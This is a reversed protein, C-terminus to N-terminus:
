LNEKEKYRVLSMQALGTSFYQKVADFTEELDHIHRKLMPVDSTDYDNIQYAVELEHKLTEVTERLADNKKQLFDNRRTLKDIIDNNDDICVDDKDERLFNPNEKRKEKIRFCITGLSCEMKEAIKRYTYGQKYLKEIQNFDIIIRRRDTRAFNKRKWTYFTSVTINFKKAIHVASKGQTHLEKMKSLQKDTIKNSM